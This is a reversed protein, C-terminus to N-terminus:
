ADREYCNVVAVSWILRGACRQGSYHQRHGFVVAVTSRGLTGGTRRNRRPQGLLEVRHLRPRADIQQLVLVALDDVDALRLAQAGAHAGVEAAAVLAALHAEEHLADGVELGQDGAVVLFRQDELVVEDLLVLRAVVDPELVVLRVDADLHGHLVLPRADEDGALDDLVAALVETRVCEAYLTRSVSSVMRLTIGSRM